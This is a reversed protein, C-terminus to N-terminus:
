EYKPFSYKKFMEVNQVIWRGYKLGIGMKPLEEKKNWGFEGCNVFGKNALRQKAIGAIEVVLKVHGMKLLINQIYYLEKSSLNPLPKGNIYDATIQKIKDRDM